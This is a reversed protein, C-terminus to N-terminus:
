GERVFVDAAKAAEIFARRAAADSGTGDLGDHCAQLADIYARGRRNKPWDLLLMEAASRTSTIHCHLGARKQSEVVVARGWGTMPV